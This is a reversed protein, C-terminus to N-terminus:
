LGKAFHLANRRAIAMISGQPNVGPATCLLSADNVFLNQHGHVKGFSDVACVDRAEGMVCSSFLHITMLDTSDPPLTAPIRKLDGETKLPSCGAVSPYLEIAGAAFLLRCLDRLSTGLLNFHNNQLAYRVLPDRSFPVNRVIGTNPGAIMAYYVAARRWEKSSNPKGERHSAMALSIYPLTSISCGLCVRPAFETVQQAAVEASGDNIEDPFFAVVKVMPHLALSNGINRKIGSRRLLAPSQLAGCCVFAADAFISIPVGARVATLEWQTNKRRLQKARVATMFRCGLSKARPILTETMSQREGPYRGSEIPEKQYKFWRPIEKSKWGMKDAGTRMKTAAGPPIGPNLQVSLEAECAEFHPLLNEMELYQVQFQNRWGDLVEVPTRHYMGSNIESGGGACCAEAFPITPKGLAPNMAGSRYKQRLEEISFPKCSSLPLNPGEEVLLVDKGQAALTWATVSGGPGSGIVLVECRHVETSV